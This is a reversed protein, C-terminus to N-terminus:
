QSQQLDLRLDWRPPQGPARKIAAQARWLHMPATVEALDKAQYRSSADVVQSTVQGQDDFVGLWHGGFFYDYSDDFIHYQQEGARHIDYRYYLDTLEPVRVRIPFAAPRTSWANLINVHHDFREGIFHAVGEADTTARRWAYDYEWLEVQTGVLPQGDKDRVAIAVDATVSRQAPLIAFVMAPLGIIILAMVTLCLLMVSILKKMSRM